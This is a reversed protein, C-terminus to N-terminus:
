PPSASLIEPNGALYALTRPCQPPSGARRMGALAHLDSVTDIDFGTALRECSLGARRAQELTDALVSATSMPHDFLGPAPRRLAVLSYGGDADPCVAIDARQLSALAAEFIDRDLLPSDSGRLVVPLAGAAAAERVAWDMRASLDAGRQAVVRFAAPARRAMSRCAAAPHLALVAELGLARAVDATAHLVDDLLCAYLEAAQTPSLPPCLRTKVHGAVPEKAFVVVTGASARM